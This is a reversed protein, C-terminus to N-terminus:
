TYKLKVSNLKNVYKFVLMGLSWYYYYYYCCYFTMIMLSEEQETPIAFVISGEGTDVELKWGRRNHKSRTDQKDKRRKSTLPVGGADQPSTDRHALHPMYTHTHQSNPAFIFTNPVSINLGLFTHTKLRI